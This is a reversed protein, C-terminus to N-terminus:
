FGRNTSIVVVSISILFLMLATGTMRFLLMSGEGVKNMCSVLRKDSIVGMVAAALKLLCAMCFIRLLPVACLALLLLLMVIGISNKIVVASGVALEVVGDAAGGIGPIASIAKQLASSKVSDLVPTIAAQFVSIGTVIGAAAKLATRIGKGLLEILLALKEEIWIGNVVVLLVYAHVFPMLGLILINELGYILLLLLQYCAAATTMGTAVGVSLCYTPVLLKIFVVINELTEAAVQATEKFYRLLITILLLYMFYFSVDSIQHRDFVETFHAILSSALGLTLLWILIGRLGGLQAAFGASCEQILRLFAGSLNGELVMGWLERFSFSYEPFLRSLGDQLTDLGYDGWIETMNISFDM